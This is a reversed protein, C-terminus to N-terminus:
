QSKVSLRKKFLAGFGLATATGLITLPEPVNEHDTELNFTWTLPDGEDAVNYGNLAITVSDPTFTSLQNNVLNLNNVLSGDGTSSGPLFTVGTIIGPNPIWDLATLEWTTNVM